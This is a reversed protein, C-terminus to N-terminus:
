KPPENAWFQAITEAIEYRVEPSFKELLPHEELKLEQNRAFTRALRILLQDNLMWRRPINRKIAMVERTAALQQLLRRESGRLRNKGRVKKWVNDFDPEYRHQETLPTFNEKLQESLNKEEIQKILERYIELLYRVDNYAYRLQQMSLPRQDWETRAQDKEIEINLIHAVLDQYSMMHNVVGLTTVAIQTDFLPTPFVKLAHLLTELDQSASHFIKVIHPAILLQSLSSLDEITLPDICVLQEETAIQVLCLKPFYTKVRMFETDVAIAKQSKLVEAIWDNLQKQEQIFLTEKTM